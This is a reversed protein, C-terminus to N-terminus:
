AGLDGEQGVLTSIGAYVSKGSDTSFEATKPTSSNKYTLGPSWGSSKIGEQQLLRSNYVESYTPLSDGGTKRQSEGTYQNCRVLGMWGREFAQSTTAVPAEKEVTKRTHKVGQSCKFADGHWTSIYGQSPTRM